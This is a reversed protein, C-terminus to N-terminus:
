TFFQRAIQEDNRMEAILAEESEFKKNDRIKILLKASVQKGYLDGSWDLLYLELSRATEGFTLPAGVFALSKIVNDEVTAEAVYIGDPIDASLPINATPFGLKAGRGAHHQVTGSIVYLPTNM